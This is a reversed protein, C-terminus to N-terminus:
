FSESSLISAERDSLPHCLAEPTASSSDRARGSPTMPEALKRLPILELLRSNETSVICLHHATSNAM